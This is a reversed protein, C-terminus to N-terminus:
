HSITDVLFVLLLWVLGGLICSWSPSMSLRGGPPVSSVRCAYISSISASQRVLWRRSLSNFCSVLCICRGCSARCARSPWFGMMSSFMLVEVRRSSRSSFSFSALSPLIVRVFGGLILILLPMTPVVYAISGDKVLLFYPLSLPLLPEPIDLLLEAM